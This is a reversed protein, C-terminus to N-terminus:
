HSSFFLGAIDASMLNSLTAAAVVRLGYRAVEARRHPAVTGFGGALIAMSSFNAFGCLAFSVVTITKPDLVQRGTAAVAAADKLYPALGVYAVFENLILKQGIFNGAIAADAWPVGLLYALPAFVRGLITELSLMPYGFWVGIGGVIGNVLAILGIFAILMAGIMVAIRVGVEVGSGVAQIVNAPRHEDFSVQKFQM